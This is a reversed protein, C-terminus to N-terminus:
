SGADLEAQLEEDTMGTLDRVGLVGSHATETKESYGHKGLALKVINSNFENKLGKELLTFHQRSKCHALIESFENGEQSAWDYLTSEAVNLIMSMGIASPMAHPAYDEIYAWAQEIIEPTYKTPRGGAM